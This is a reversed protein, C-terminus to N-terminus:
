QHKKRFEDGETLRLVDRLLYVFAELLVRPEMTERECMDSALTM